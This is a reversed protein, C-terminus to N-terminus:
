QLGGTSSSTGNGLYALTSVNLSRERGRETWTVTLVIETVDVDARTYSELRWKYEPWEQGFDGQTSGTNWDGQSVLEALKAEGLTAAEAQHKASSATNLALTSGRVAFPVVIGILVLTALVEILTFASGRRRRRSRAFQSGVVKM